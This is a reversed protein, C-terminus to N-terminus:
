QLSDPQDNLGQDIQTATTDLINLSSDASQLDKDVQADSKDNAPNVAAKQTASPPPSPQVYNNVSNKNVGGGFKSYAFLGGGLIAIVVIMLVAILLKSVGKSQPLTEQPVNPQVPAQQNQIVPDMCLIICM